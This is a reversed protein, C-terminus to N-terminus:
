PVGSARLSHAASDRRQLHLHMCPEPLLHHVDLHQLGQLFSCLNSTLPAERSWVAQLLLRGTENDLAHQQCATRLTLQHLCHCPAQPASSPASCQASKPAPMCPVRKLTSHLCRLTSRCDATALEQYLLALALTQGPVSLAVVGAQCALHDELCISLAQVWLVMGGPPCTHKWGTLCEEEVVWLVKGGLPCTHMWGTM